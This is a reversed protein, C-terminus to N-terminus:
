ETIAAQLIDSSRKGIFPLAKEREKIGLMELAIDVIEEVALSRGRAVERGNIVLLPLTDSAPIYQTFIDWYVTRPIVIADIGYERFLKESAKKANEVLEDTLPDLGGYVIIEVDVAAGIEIEIHAGVDHTSVNISGLSASM